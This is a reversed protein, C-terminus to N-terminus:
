LSADRGNGGAGATAISVQILDYFFYSSSCLVMFSSLANAGYITDKQLAPDLVVMMAVPIQLCHDLDHLWVPFARSCFLPNLSM